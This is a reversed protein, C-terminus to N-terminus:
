TDFSLGVIVMEKDDVNNQELLKIADIPPKEQGSVIDWLIKNM